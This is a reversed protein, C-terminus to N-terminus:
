RVSYFAAGYPDLRVNFRDTEGLDKKTRLDCVRRPRDLTVRTTGASGNSEGERVFGLYMEDGGKAPTLVFTRVCTIGDSAFRVGRDPLRDAFRALVADRYAVAEPVKDKVLRLTRYQPMLRDFRVAGGGKEFLGDLAGRPLLNCHIDHTASHRDGVVLGGSAAFRRIAAIEKASMASSEPLILVRAPTRDLEGSEIEGYAVFRYSVNMDDLLQCWLARVALFSDYRREIQAAHVSAQSYHLLVQPREDLTRLLAAGGDIFFRLAASLERVQSPVTFDPQLLNVGDFYSVGFNKFRLADFWVRREVDPGSAGYGYWPKILPRRFSRVIEALNDRDYAACVGISESLLWMDMGTYGNPPQTGSMDLPTGPARAEILDKVSKFYGCYSLEMFRRHDAWAAWRRDAAHAARAEDTTLPTVDDWTGYSTGWSANLAPLSGYVGKLWEREASLTHVSFCFDFPTEWLTLSNEDGCDFSSPSYKVFRDIRAEIKARDAAISEPDHFCPKRCLYKRDKTKAYPESFESTFGWLHTGTVPFDMKFGMKLAEGFFASDEYHWFRLENVGIDRYQRFRLKNLYRRNFARYLSEGAAFPMAHANEPFLREVERAPPKAPAPATRKARASWGCSRGSADRLFEHVIELGDPSSVKEETRVADAPAAVDKKAAWAVARAMVGLSYDQYRFAPEPQDYYIYPTLGGHAPHDFVVMRSAGSSFARLKGAGYPLLVDDVANRIWATGADDANGPPIAGKELGIAVVGTGSAALARMKEKNAASVHKWLNGAIVIADLPRSLEKSLSLNADEYTFRNYRECMGWALAERSAAFRVVRHDLDMREALEVVERAQRLDVLFFVRPKGGAWNKMWPVHESVIEESLKLEFPKLEAPKAKATRPKIALGKEFPRDAEYVVRGSEKVTVRVAKLDRAAAGLPITAAADPSIQVHRRVVSLGGCKRALKVEVEVLYTRAASVVAALSGGASEVVASCIGNEAGDPRVIGTAPWLLLQTEFAAGPAVEVPQFTWEMTTNDAGGLWFYGSALHSYDFECVLAASEGDAVALWGAVADNFVTNGGTPGFRRVGDPAPALYHQGPRGFAACGNRFHPEFTQPAMSEPLNRYSYVCEVAPSSESLSFTKSIELFPYDAPAKLSLRVSAKERSNEVVEVTYIRNYSNGGTRLRDTFLRQQPHHTGAYNVGSAKVVFERCSGGKTQDFVLRVYDNELVAMGDAESVRCGEAVARRPAFEDISFGDYWVRGPLRLRAYFVVDKVARPPNFADELMEWGHTGVGPKTKPAIWQRSGDAYNVCLEVGYNRHSPIGDEPLGESMTWCSYAFPAPEAQDLPVTRSVIAQGGAGEGFELRLSGGVADHSVAGDFTARYLSWGGAGDAFSGDSIREAAVAAPACLVAAAAACAFVTNEMKMLGEM